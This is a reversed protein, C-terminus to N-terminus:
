PLIGGFRRYFSLNTELDGSELDMAALARAKEVEGNIAYLLALNQRVQINSRNYNAATELTSIAAQLRGSIAQSMALNNLVVANEPSHGLATMYASIAKDFKGQADYAIGLASHVKWNDPM